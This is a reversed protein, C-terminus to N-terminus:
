FPLEPPNEYHDVAWDVSKVLKGLLRRAEDRSMGTPIQVRVFDTNRLEKTKGSMITDGDDDHGVATDGWMDSLADIQIFERVPKDGYQRLLDDKTARDELEKLRDGLSNLAFRIVKFNSCLAEPSADAVDLDAVEHEPQDTM